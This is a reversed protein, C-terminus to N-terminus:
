DDHLTPGEGEVREDRQSSGLRRPDVRRGKASLVLRPLSLPSPSERPHQGVSTGTGGHAPVYVTAVGDHEVAETILEGASTSM